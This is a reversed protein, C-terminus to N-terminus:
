LVPPPVWCSPTAGAVTQGSAPPTSSFLGDAYSAVPGVSCKSDSGELAYVIWNRNVGDLKTNYSASLYMIGSNGGGSISPMPLKGSIITKLANNISSYEIYSGSADWCKDGPYDEGLCAWYSAPYSGNFSAYSTMAKIYASAAQTTQTNRARQQIGNYAVVTIAALIGIVVIVVLLEVITFGAQKHGRIISM